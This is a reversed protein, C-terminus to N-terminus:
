GVFETEPKATLWQKIKAFVPMDPISTPTTAQARVRDMRTNVEEVPFLDAPRGIAM